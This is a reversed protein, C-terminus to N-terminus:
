YEYRSVSQIGGGSFLDFRIEQTLNCGCYIMKSITQGNSRAELLNGLGDRIYDNEHIVRGQNDLTQTKIVWDGNYIKRLASRTTSDANLGKELVVRGTDDYDYAFGYLPKTSTELFSWITRLRNQSDYLYTSYSVQKKDLNFSKQTVLRGNQYDYVTNGVFVFPPRATATGQGSEGYRQEEVLQGANNYVSKLRAILIRKPMEFSERQTVKGQANYQYVNLTKATAFTLQAIPQIAAVSSADWLFSLYPLRM